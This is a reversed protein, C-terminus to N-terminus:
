GRPPVSLRDSFSADLQERDPSRWRTEVDLALSEVTTNSVLVLELPITSDGLGAETLGDLELVREGDDGVRLSIPYSASTDVDLLFRASESPPGTAPARLTFQVRRSKWGDAQPGVALALTAREPQTSRPRVAVDVNAVHEGEHTFDYHRVGAEPKEVTPSGLSTPQSSLSSCGSAVVLASTGFAQLARRRNKDVM